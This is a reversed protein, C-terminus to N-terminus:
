RARKTQRHLTQQKANSSAAHLQERLMTAHAAAERSWTGDPGAAQVFREFAAFARAMLERKSADGGSQAAAWAAMGEYYEREHAPVFFVSPDDLVQLPQEGLLLRQAEELARGQEGARDLAVVWGWQAIRRADGDSEAIAREYVAVAQPADGALMTVEALNSLAGSVIQGDLRLALANAYEEAAQSFSAQRTQLVGLQYAVSEAEYLPDVNRLALFTAMAESTARRTDLPEGQWATLARGLLYLLEPDNPTLPRARTLRTLAGEIAIRRQAASHTGLGASVRLAPLLLARAQKVLSQARAVEPQKVRQWFKSTGPTDAAQASVEDAAGCTLAFALLLARRM